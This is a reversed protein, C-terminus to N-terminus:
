VIFLRLFFVNRQQMSVIFACVLDTVNNNAKQSYSLKILAFKLNECDSPTPLLINTVNIHCIYCLRYGTIKFMAKSFGSITHEGHM